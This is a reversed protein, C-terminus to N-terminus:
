DDHRIYIDYEIFDQGIFDKPTVYILSERPLRFTEVKTYKSFEKAFLPTVSFADIFDFVHEKGNLRYYIRQAIFLKTQFKRLDQAILNSFYQRQALHTEPTKSKETRNTVLNSIFWFAAFRSGFTREIYLNIPFIHGMNEHMIFYSDGKDSYELIKKYIPSKIYNEPKPIIEKTYYTSSICILLAIFYCINRRTKPLTIYKLIVGLLLTCATM